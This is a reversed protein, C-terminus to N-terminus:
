GMCDPLICVLSSANRKDIIHTDLMVPQNLTIPANYQAATTNNAKWFHLQIDVVILHVDAKFRKGNFQQRKVHTVDSLVYECM